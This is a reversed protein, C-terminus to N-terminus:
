RSICQWHDDERWCVTSVGDSRTFSSQHVGRLFPWSIIDDKEPSRNEGSSLAARLVPGRSLFAHLRQMCFCKEHELYKTAAPNETNYVHFAFIVAIFVNFM